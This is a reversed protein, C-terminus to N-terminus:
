SANQLDPAFNRKKKIIRANKRFFLGHVEFPVHAKYYRYFKYNM